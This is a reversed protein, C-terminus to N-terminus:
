GIAAGANHSSQMASDDAVDLDANIMAEPLITSSESSTASQSMSTDQQAPQPVPPADDGDTEGTAKTTTGDNHTHRVSTSQNVTAPNVLNFGNNGVFDGNDAATSPAGAM